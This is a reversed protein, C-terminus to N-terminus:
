NVCFANVPLSGDFSAEYSNDEYFHCASAETAHIKYFANGEDDKAYILDLDGHIDILAQLSAILKSAKM